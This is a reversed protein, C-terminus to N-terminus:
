MKMRVHHKLGDKSGKEKIAKVTDEIVQEKPWHMVKPKGDKGAFDRPIYYNTLRVKDGYTLHHKMKASLDRLSLPKM